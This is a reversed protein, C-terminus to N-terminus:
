SGNRQHVSRVLHGSGILGGMRSRDHDFNLLVALSRSRHACQGTSLAVSITGWERTGDIFGHNKPTDKRVPSWESTSVPGARQRSSASRKDRGDPSSGERSPVNVREGSASADPDRGGPTAIVAGSTPHRRLRDRPLVRDRTGGEAASHQRERPHRKGEISPAHRGKAILALRQRTRPGHRRKAGARALRRM